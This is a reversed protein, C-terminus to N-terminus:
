HWLGVPVTKTILVWNGATILTREDRRERSGNGWIDVYNRKFGYEDVKVEKM